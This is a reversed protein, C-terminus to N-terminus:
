LWDQLTMKIPIRKGDCAVDFALETGPPGPLKAEFAWAKAETDLEVLRDGPKLGATEAPSGAAVAKVVTQNAEWAWTLGSHDYIFADGLHDNPKLWITANASDFGVTFRKLMDIGVIGDLEPSEIAPISPDALVGIPEQFLFAGMRFTQLKVLRGHGVSGTVGRYDYALFRPHANWLDHAKVFAPNLSVTVSAGTDVLLRAPIGNVLCDAIFPKDVSRRACHVPRFGAHDPEGKVAVRVLGQTFDMETYRATLVSLPAIGDLRAGTGEAGAGTRGQGGDEEAAFDMDQQLLAGGFVVQHARYGQVTNTGTAGYRRADGVYDLKLEEIISRRLSAGFTNGSDLLVLYPKSKGVTMATVPQNGRMAFRFAVYEAEASRAPRPAALPAATRRDLVAFDTSILRDGSV